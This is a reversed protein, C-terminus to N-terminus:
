RLWIPGMFINIEYLRARDLLIIAVFVIFAVGFGYYEVTLWSFEVLAFFCGIGSLVIALFDMGMVIGPVIASSYVFNKSNQDKSVSM